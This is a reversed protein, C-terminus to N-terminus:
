MQYPVTPPFMFHPNSMDSTWTSRWVLQGEAFMATCGCGSGCTDLSLPTLGYDMLMAEVEEVTLQPVEEVVPFYRDLLWTTIAVLMRLALVKM